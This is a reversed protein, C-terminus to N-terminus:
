RRPPTNGLTKEIGSHGVLPDDHHRSILETRIIEPIYPLGQRHLDGESDEWGEPSTLGSGRLKPEKEQLEQLRLRMGGISATYHEEDVLEARFTDLFQRLQPLVHTGCILVQHLPTLSSSSSSTAIIKKRARAERLIDRCLM